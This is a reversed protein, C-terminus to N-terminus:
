LTELAAILADRRPHPYRAAGTLADVAEATSFFIRGPALRGPLGARVLLDHVPGKVEALHLAVGADRLSAALRELAALATSDIDNVASAVLVLHEVQPHRALHAMIFDEVRGINAFSLNEDVRVLALHPWTEVEHRRVNRFLQTGPIRGLLAVHPRSTRWLHALLSALVGVVLGLEIGFVLVAGLTLLLVAADRRQYRWLRRVEGLDILQAVAVVVIAALAAQPLRAFLHAFSLLIAGMAVATVIGALQTRAGAVFNVMTR